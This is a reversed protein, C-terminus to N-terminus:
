RLRVRRKAALEKRILAEIEQLFRELDRESAIERGKVDLQVPVTPLAGGDELLEDLQALAKQEANELRSRFEADLQALGPAVAEATTNLPAGQRLPTLVHPPQHPTLPDVAARRTM